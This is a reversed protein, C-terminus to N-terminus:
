QLQEPSSAPYDSALTHIYGDAACWYGYFVRSSELCNGTWPKWVGERNRFDPHIIISRTDRRLGQRVAKLSSEKASWILNVILSKEAEPAQEWVSVEGPTFYDRVFNDERPEIYELDCGIAINHPGVACLSRDNSHSISLSVNGPGGSWVAEPAGDEAARIELSPLHADKEMRYACIARKATWRGLLWDRRRKPFRMGALILRENDSLWDDNDPVDALTQTLWYLLESM